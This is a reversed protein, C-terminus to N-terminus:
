SLLVFEHVSDGSVAGTADYRREHFRVQGDRTILVVSSCRTGYTTGDIFISSLVRELERGVGTDPLDSDDAPAADRLVTLLALSLDDPAAVTDRAMVHKFGARLRETKPWPTDLAANSLTYIGPELAHPTSAQNSYWNLDTGDYALLNFGDYDRATTALEANFRAASTAAHLFDSVILGRSRPGRRVRNGSRVNTVTAFRGNVNVGLWTGGSELDRGAVVGHLDDWAAAAATPRAHFEDRNAVVVLRYDPDCDHAVLLLCM